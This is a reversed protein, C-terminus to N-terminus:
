LRVFPIMRIAMRFAVASMLISFGEVLKLHIAFWAAIGSISVVLSSPDMSISPDSVTNLLTTQVQEILMYVARMILVPFVTIAMTWLLVKWAAFRVVSYGVASGFASLLWGLLAGM